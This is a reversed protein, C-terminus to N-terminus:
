LISAVKTSMSADTWLGIHFYRFVGDADIMVLTPLSSVSFYNSFQRNDVGHAWTLDKNSKYDAMMSTTEDPDVTLSVVVVTGSLDELITELYGNQTTCFSCWTAMLDVIVVQGELDSLSLTTGDSMEFTWTGPVELGLELLDTDETTKTLQTHGGDDGGPFTLFAVGVVLGVVVVILTVGVIALKEPQM